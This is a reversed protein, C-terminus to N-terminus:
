LEPDEFMPAAKYIQMNPKLPYVVSVKHGEKLVEDIRAEMVTGEISDVGLIFAFLEKLTTEPENYLDEYRLFHIPLTRNGNYQM